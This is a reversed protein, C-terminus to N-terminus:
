DFKFELRNEEYESEKGPRWCSDGKTIATIASILIYSVLNAKLTSRASLENIVIVIGQKWPRQEGDDKSLKPM